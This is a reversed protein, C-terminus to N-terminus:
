SFHSNITVQALKIYNEAEILAGVQGQNSQRRYRSKITNIHQQVEIIQFNALSKLLYLSERRDVRYTSVSIDVPGATSSVDLEPKQQYSSNNSITDGSLGRLHMAKYCKALKGCINGIQRAAMALVMNLEGRVACKECAMFIALTEISNRVDALILDIRNERSASRSALRELFSISSLLCSCSNSEAGTKAGGGVSEISPPESLISGLRTSDESANMEWTMEGGHTPHIGDWFNMDIASDMASPSFLSSLFADTKLLDPFQDPSAVAFTHSGPSYSSDNTTLDSASTPNDSSSSSSGGDSSHQMPTFIMGHPLPSEETVSDDCLKDHLDDLVFDEAHKAQNSRAASQEAGDSTMRSSSKRKSKTATQCPSKSEQQKNRRQNEPYVCEIGMLVCRQCGTRRGSCGAKRSRCFMCAIHIKNQLNRSVASVPDPNEIFELTGSDFETSVLTGFM